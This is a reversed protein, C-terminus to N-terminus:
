KSLWKEIYAGYIYAYMEMQYKGNTDADIPTFASVRPKWPFSAGKKADITFKIKYEGQEQICSVNFTMMEYMAFMGGGDRMIEKKIDSVEFQLAGDRIGMYTFKGERSKFYKESEEAIKKLLSRQFTIEEEKAKQLDAENPKRNRAVKKVNSTPVFPKKLSINRIQIDQSVAKCREDGVQVSDAIFSLKIKRCEEKDGIEISLQRAPIEMLQAIKYFVTKELSQTNMTEFKSKLQGYAVVASDSTQYNLKLYVRLSNDDLNTVLRDTKLVTGFNHEDMWQQLYPMQAEFFKDDEATLKAVENPKQALLSVSLLFLLSFITIRKM